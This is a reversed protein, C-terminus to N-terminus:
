DIGGVRYWVQHAVTPARHDEKVIVRMGNALKFETTGGDPVAAQVAAGPAPPADVAVGQAHALPLWM